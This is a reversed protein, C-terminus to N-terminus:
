LLSSFAAKPWLTALTDFANEIVQKVAENRNLFMRSALGTEINIVDPVSEGKSENSNSKPIGNECLIVQEWTM